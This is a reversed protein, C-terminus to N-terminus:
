KTTAVEGFITKKENPDSIVSAKRAQSLAQACREWNRHSAPSSRHAVGNTEPKITDKWISLRFAITIDWWRAGYHNRHLYTSESFSFSRNQIIAGTLMKDWVRRKSAGESDCDRTWGSALILLCDDNNFTPEFSGYFTRFPRSKAHGNWLLHRPHKFKQHRTPTCVGTDINDM